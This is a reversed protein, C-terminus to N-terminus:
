LAPLLPNRSVVFRGDFPIAESEILAVVAQRLHTARWDEPLLRKELENWRIPGGRLQQLVWAQLPRLDPDENLLLQHGPNDTKRICFEGNPSLKWMCYKILERGKDHNTLHLLLYRLSGNDHRMRLMTKWKASTSNKILQAAIDAAEDSTADLPIGRWDPSNFIADIVKPWESEPKRQAQRIAMFLERWMVNILIEVKPFSMLDRLLAGPVKFSYPDILFFAPALQQGDKKLGDLIGQLAHFCDGEALSTHVGKPLTGLGDIENRLSEAHEADLEFFIFQVEGSKLVTDRYRHNLFAKLAVLPSGDEGSAHRGRGAHTDFIVIRGSWSGMIPLWGNLYERVLKHKAEQLPSYELFYDTTDEYPTENAM